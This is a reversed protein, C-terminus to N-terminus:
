AARRMRQPIREDIPVVEGSRKHLHHDKVSREVVSGAAIMAGAGIRVGPLIIAGAGISAGCLVEVTVFEGSLLPEIEFKGTSPWCDNCLIAGPGVFVQDGLRSGPHLQAGHGIKCGNGIFAGDVVSCGGIVCDRGIRSGRIVSAFQWVRTGAGIVVTEGIVAQHDIM